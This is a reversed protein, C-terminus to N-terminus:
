DPLQRLSFWLFRLLFSLLLFRILSRIIPLGLGTPDVRAYIRRLHARTRTNCSAAASGEKASPESYVRAASVSMIERGPLIFATLSKGYVCGTDLGIANSTRQFGRQADHGFVITRPGKWHNVWPDGSKWDKTATGDPLINRMQVLNDHNQDEFPVGPIVGAHVTTINHEPFDLFYPLSNMWDIEDRTLTPVEGKYNPHLKKYEKSLYDPNRNIHEDWNGMVCQLGTLSRAFRVCEVSQPGKGVLDGVLVIRDVGDRYKCKRLLARLEAICGHVDGVFIIRKDKAGSASASTAM